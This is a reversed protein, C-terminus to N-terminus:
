TLRCGIFGGVRPRARPGDRDHRMHITLPYAVEGHRGPPARSLSTGALFVGEIVRERLVDAVREAKPATGEVFPSRPKYFM